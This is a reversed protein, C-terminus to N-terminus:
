MGLSTRGASPNLGLHGPLAPPPASRGSGRGGRGPSGIPLPGPRRAAASARAVPRSVVGCTMQKAVDAHNSASQRRRPPAAVALAQPIPRQALSRGCQDGFGCGPPGNEEWAKDQKGGPAGVQPSSPTPKGPGSTLGSCTSHAGQPRPLLWRGGPYRLTAPLAGWGSTPKPPHPVPTSPGEVRSRFCAPGGHM